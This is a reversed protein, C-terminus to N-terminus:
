GRFVKEYDDWLCTREEGNVFSILNFYRGDYSYFHNLNNIIEMERYGASKKMTNFLNDIISTDDNLTNIILMNLLESILQKKESHTLTENKLVGYAKSDLYNILNNNVKKGILGRYGTTILTNNIVYGDCNWGYGGCAYYYPEQYKLLNQARCYNIAIANPYANLLAKRTTKVKM